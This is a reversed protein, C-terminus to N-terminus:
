SVWVAASIVQRLFTVPMQGLAQPNGISAFVVDSFGLENAASPDEKLRQQLQDALSAIEGRVAYQVNLINQNISDPTLVPLRTM